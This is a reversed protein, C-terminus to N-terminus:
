NPPPLTPTHPRIGNRISILFGVIQRKCLDCDLAGIGRFSQCVMWRFHCLPEWLHHTSFSWATNELRNSFEWHSPTYVLWKASEPISSTEQGWFRWRSFGKRGGRERERQVHMVVSWFLKGMKPSTNQLDERGKGQERKEELAVGGGWMCACVCM